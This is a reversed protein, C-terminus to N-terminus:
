RTIRVAGSDQQETRLSLNSEILAIFADADRADIYGGIRLAAVDGDGFEFRVGTQREVDGAAEALSEGDFALMHTRWALRRAASEPPLAEPDASGDGLKAETGANLPARVSRMEISGRIVSVRVGDALAKLLYTGPSAAKIQGFETHIRFPRQDTVINFLAEGQQLTVNRAQATYAAAISTMANLEIESGDQLTARERGGVPTDYTAAFTTAPTTIWLGAAGAAVASAGAAGAILLHRRSVSKASASPLQRLLKLADLEDWSRSVSEHAVRHEPSAELWTRFRQHDELTVDSAELRAIWRSAELEAGTLRRKSM